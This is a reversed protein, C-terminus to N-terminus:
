KEVGISRQRAAEYLVISGAVGANLSEVQPSHPIAVVEDVLSMLTKPVGGGEGGIVIAIPGRLDTEALSAGRHSSTAVVRLGRTHFMALTETLKGSTIPLRFLSGATARVTKPNFASVTNEGLAVGGAGFAEASRILTGLNGPDQVGAIALVMAPDSKGIVDELSHKKLKVLAAVGQPTESPVAGDFLKEPLLLTEIRSSLQPLLREIRAEAAESFFVTQFRVGSRIAEEVLHVGEIACYGEETLGGHAYASRLKRVEPNHKGSVRRLRSRMESLATEMGCLDTLMM